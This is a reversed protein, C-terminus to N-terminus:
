PFLIATVAVLSIIAVLDGITSTFPVIVNDADIGRQFTINGVLLSNIISFLTTILGTLWCIM